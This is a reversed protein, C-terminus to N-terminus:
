SHTWAGAGVSESRQLTKKAQARWWSSTGSMRDGSKMAFPKIGREKQETSIPNLNAIDQEWLPTDSWIFSGIALVVVLPVVLRARTLADVWQTRCAARRTETHFDIPVVHSPGLPTVSAATFLGVMAFLRRAAVPWPVREPTICLVWSGDGRSRPADNALDREDRDAGPEGQHSPQVSPHSLRGRRRLLTIGFALTMGHIFGFVLGVAVIGALIASTLPLSASLLFLPHIWLQRLSVNHGAIGRVLVVAM